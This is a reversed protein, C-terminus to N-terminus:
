DERNAHRDKLTKCMRSLPLAAVLAGLLLWPGHELLLHPLGSQQALHDHSGLHAQAAGNILLLAATAGAKIAYLKM